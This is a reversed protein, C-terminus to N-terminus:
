PLSDKPCAHEARPSLEINRTHYCAQRRLQRMATAKVSRVCVVVM